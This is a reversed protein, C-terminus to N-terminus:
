WDSRKPSYTPESAAKSQAPMVMTAMASAVSPAAESSIVRSPATARILWRLWPIAYRLQRGAVAAVPIAPDLLARLPGEVCLALVTLRVSQAALANCLLIDRQAGGGEFARLVV